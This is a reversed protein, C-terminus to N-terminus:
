APYHALLFGKESSTEFSKGKVGIGSVWWTVDTNRTTSFWKNGDRKVFADKRESPSLPTVVTGSPLADLAEKDGIFAGVQVDGKAPVPKVIESKLVPVIKYEGSYLNGTIASSGPRASVTQGNVSVAAYQQGKKFGEVSYVAEILVGKALTPVQTDAKRAVREFMSSPRDITNGTRLNKGMVWAGYAYTVQIIDGINVSGTATEKVARLLDGDKIKGGIAVLAVPERVLREFRFAFADTKIGTKVNKAHVLDGDFRIFEFVDGKNHGSYSEKLRLLAGRPTGFGVKSLAPVREEEFVWPEVPAPAPAVKVESAHWSGAKGELRVVYPHIPGGAPKWTGNNKEVTGFKGVCMEAHTGKVFEVRTGVPVPPNLYTANKAFQKQFYSATYESGLLSMGDKTRTAVFGGQTRVQAGEPLSAIDTVKTSAVPAATTISM